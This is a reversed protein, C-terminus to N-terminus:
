GNSRLVQKMFRIEQLQSEIITKLLPSITHPKEQLKRSMHVAMSHHPIMGLLFQRESVFLQTRIAYLNGLVLLAGVLGWGISKSYIGMFFLMWGTMLFVMYLDNVSLRIDDWSNAWVNMTSLFGALIMIITM